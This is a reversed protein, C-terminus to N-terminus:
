YGDVILVQVNNNDSKFKLRDGPSYIFVENKPLAYEPLSECSLACIIIIFVGIAKTTIETYQIFCKSCKLAM